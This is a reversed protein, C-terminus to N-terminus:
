FEKTLKRPYELFNERLCHLIWSELPLRPFAFPGPTRTKLSESLRFDLIKAVMTGDEVYSPKNCVEQKSSTPPQFTQFYYLDHFM